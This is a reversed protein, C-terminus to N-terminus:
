VMETYNPKKFMFRFNLYSMSTCAIINIYINLFMRQHLNVMQSNFINNTSALIVYSIILMLYFIEM